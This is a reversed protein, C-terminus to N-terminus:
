FFVGLITGLVTVPTMEQIGEAGKQVKKVAKETENYLSDDKALKGLTGEGNKMGATFEKINAVADKTDNYLTEDKALKGLTGKGEAIDKSVSRLSAVTDKADNYLTDDKVLKGLTGKGTEIDHSIKKFDGSVAEINALSKKIAEKETQGILGKFEGMTDGFNKVAQGIDALVANVDPTAIVCCIRDGGYLHQTARGPIIEIYKDGLVGQTKVSVQSDKPIPIGKRIQLGLLARYQELKVSGIRGADVGAIQVPTRQDLGGANELLVYVTYSGQRFGGVAGIRFSMYLIVVIAALVLIGVKLEPSFKNKMVEEQSAPFGPPRWSNVSRKV